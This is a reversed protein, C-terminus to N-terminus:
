LNYQFSLSFPELRRLPAVAFTMAAGGGEGGEAFFSTMRAELHMFSDAGLAASLTTISVPSSWPGPLTCKVLPGVEVGSGLLLGRGQMLLGVSLAPVPNYLLSASFPNEPNFMDVRATATTSILDRGSINIMSGKSVTANCLFGEAFLVGLAKVDVVGWRSHFVKSVVASVGAGMALNGVVGVADLNVYPNATSKPEDYDKKYISQVEM